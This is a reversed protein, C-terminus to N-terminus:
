SWDLGNAYVTTDDSRYSLLLAKEKVMIRALYTM